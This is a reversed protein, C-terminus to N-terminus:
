VENESLHTFVDLIFNGSWLFTDKDSFTGQLTISTNHAKNFDEGTEENISKTTSGQFHIKSYYKIGPQIMENLSCNWLPRLQFEFNGTLWVVDKTASKPFYFTGKLLSDSGSASWLIGLQTTYSPYFLSVPIAAPLVGSWYTQPGEFSNGIIKGAIAAAGFKSHEGLGTNVKPLLEKTKATYSSNMKLNLWAEGTWNFLMGDPSFTGTLSITGLQSGDNEESDMILQSISDQNPVPTPKSKDKFLLWTSYKMGPQIVDLSTAWLTTVEFTFNGNVWETSYNYNDSLSMPFSFNGTLHPSVEAATWELNVIENASPKTSLLHVPIIVPITGSFWPTSNVYINGSSVMVGVSKKVGKGAASLGVNGISTKKNNETLAAPFNLWAQGTWTFSLKDPSLSGTLIIINSISGTTAVLSQLKASNSSSFILISSYQIGPQITAISTNFLTILNLSFIGSLPEVTFNESAPIFTPFTFNGEVHSGTVSTAVWDVKVMSSGTTKNSLHQLPIVAPLSGSWWNSVTGDTTGSINGSTVVVGISKKVGAVESAKFNKMEGLKFTLKKTESTNSPFNLWAQGTWIFSMKDPSLSGSLMIISSKNGASKQDISSLKLNDYEMKKSSQFIVISSYQIGPQIADISTNFLTTFNLSFSASFPDVTFNEGFPIYTPLTFEGIVQSDTVSTAIWDVMVINSGTTKNSLNQLPIIVPLSFITSENTIRSINVSTVVIGVSKKVGVIKTGELNNEQISNLSNTAFQKFYFPSPMAHFAIIVKGSWYFIKRDPSYSGQLVIPVHLASNIEDQSPSTLLNKMHKSDQFVIRSNYKIGPMILGDLTSNPSPELLFSFRGNWWQVSSVIGNFAYQPLSFYGEFFTGIQTGSWIVGHGYVQPNAPVDVSDTTWFVPLPIEAPLSGSWLIRPYDSELSGVLHGSLVTAFIEKRLEVGKNLSISQLFKETMNVSPPKPSPFSLFGQGSWDFLNSETCLFPLLKCYIPPSVFLGLLVISCPEGEGLDNSDASAYQTSTKYGIPTVSKTSSKFYIKCSYTKRLKVAVDFTKDYQTETNLSFNGYWMETILLSDNKIYTPISFQGSLAPTLQDSKWTVDASVSYGGPKALLDLNIRVPIKGSWTYMGTKNESSAFVNGNTLSFSVSLKAPKSPKSPKSPIKTSNDSKKLNELQKPVNTVAGFVAPSNKFSIIFNGNWIFASGDPTYTGQLIVPASIPSLGDDGFSNGKVIMKSDTNPEKMGQFHITSYYKVDPSILGDLTVNWLPQVQFNFQGNWWQVSKSIGNWVYQPLSFTGTITSGFSSGTWTIGLNISTGSDPTVGPSYFSTVPITVPLVGSWWVSPSSNELGAKLLGSMVQGGFQQSYQPVFDIVNNNISLQIVKKPDLGIFVDGSWYFENKESCFPSIYCYFPKSYFDGVLVLKGTPVDDLVDQADMALNVISQLKSKKEELSSYLSAVHRFLVKFNYKKGSSLLEDLLSPYKTTYKFSFNGSWWQQVNSKGEVYTPLSFIGNVIDKTVEGSWIVNAVPMKGYNNSPTIPDLPITTPFIGSWIQKETEGTLSAFVSGSSITLSLSTNKDSKVLNNIPPKITQPSPATYYLSIGNRFSIIFNGSWLFTKKDLSYTGQLIIPAYLDSSFDPKDIIDMPTYTIDGVGQFNLKSYYKAGPVFVSDLSTNWLPNIQISFEGSWTQVTPILNNWMVQEINYTGQLTSGLLSGSWTVGPTFLFSVPSYFETIPISVPINGTWITKPKENNLGATLYGTEVIGGFTSASWEMDIESSKLKAMQQDIKTKSKRVAIIVDGSWSFTNKVSSFTGCLIIPVPITGDIIDQSAVVFKELPGANYKGDLQSNVTKMLKTKDEHFIIRSTYKIGPTLIEDLTTNWLPLVNFTFVGQTWKISFNSFDNYFKPYSFDGELMSKTVSASWIIGNAFVPSKEVDDSTYAVNYFEPLSIESPLEGSWLVSSSGDSNSTKISGEIVSFGGSMIGEGDIEVVPLSASLKEIDAAVIDVSNPLTVTVGGSWYFTKRDVSYAGKLIIPLKLGGMVTPTDDGEGVTIFGVNSSQTPNDNEESLFVPSSYSGGLIVSDIDSNNWLLMSNFNFEGNIWSVSFNTVGPILHKYKPISFSGKIFIEGNEISMSGTWQIGNGHSIFGAPFLPLKESDSDFLPLSIAVPFVGNWIPVGNNTVINGSTVIAGIKTYASLSKKNSISTWKTLGMEPLESCSMRENGPRVSEM